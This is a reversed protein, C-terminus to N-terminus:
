FAGVFVYLSGDMYSFEPHYVLLGSKLSSVYNSESHNSLAECCLLQPDQSSKLITPLISDSQTQSPQPADVEIDTMITSTSLFLTLYQYAIHIDDIVYM